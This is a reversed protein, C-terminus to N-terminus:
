NWPPYGLWLPLHSDSSLPTFWCSANVQLVRLIWSKDLPWWVVLLFVWKFCILWILDMGWPEPQFYSFVFSVVVWWGAICVILPSFDKLNEVGTANNSEGYFPALKLIWRNWRGQPVSAVVLVPAMLWSVPIPIGQCRAPSCGSFFLFFHCNPFPTFIPQYPGSFWRKKHSDSNWTSLIQQPTFM